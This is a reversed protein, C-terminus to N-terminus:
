YCRPHQRLFNGSVDSGRGTCASVTQAALAKMSYQVIALGDGVFARIHDGLPLVVQQRYVYLTKCTTSSRASDRRCTLLVHLTYACVAIRFATDLRRLAYLLLARSTMGLLFIILNQSERNLEPPNTASLSQALIIMFSLGCLPQVSNLASNRSGLPRHWM